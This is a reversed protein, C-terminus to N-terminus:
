ERTRSAILLIMAQHPAPQPASQAPQQAFVANPSLALISLLVVAAYRRLM